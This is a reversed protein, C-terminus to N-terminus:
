IAETLVTLNGKYVRPISLPSQTSMSFMTSYTHRKVTLVHETIPKPMRLRSEGTRVRFPFNYCRRLKSILLECRDRCGDIMRGFM